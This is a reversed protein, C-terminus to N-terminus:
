RQCVAEPRQQLLQGAHAAVMVKLPESASVRRTRFHYKLIRATLVSDERQVVAGEVVLQLPVRCDLMAPWVISIELKTGEELLQDATFVIEKSSMRATQGMGVHPMRAHTKYRLEMIVPYQYAGGLGYSREM